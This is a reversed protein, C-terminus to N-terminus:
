LIQQVDMIHLQSYSLKKKTSLIINGVEKDTLDEVHIEDPFFKKINESTPVSIFIFYSM